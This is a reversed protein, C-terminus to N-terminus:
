PIIGRGHVWTLRKTSSPLPHSTTGVTARFVGSTIACRTLRPSHGIPEAPTPKLAAHQYISPSSSLPIKGTISAEPISLRGKPSGQRGDDDGYRSAYVRVSM